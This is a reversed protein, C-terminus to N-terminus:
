ISGARPRLRRQLLGLLIGPVLFALGIMWFPKLDFEYKTADGFNIAPAAGLLMGLGQCAVFFVGLLVLLAGSWSAGARALRSATLLHVLLSLVGVVISAAGLWVLPMMFPMMAAKINILSQRM